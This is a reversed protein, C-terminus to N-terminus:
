PARGILEYRTNSGSWGYIFGGQLRTHSGSPSNGKCAACDPGAYGKDGDPGWCFHPANLNLVPPALLQIKGLEEAHNKAVYYMAYDRQLDLWMEPSSGTLKSLKLATLETIARKGGVIENITLRSVDIKDALEDQTLCLRDLIAEKVYLGPHTPPRQGLKQRAM